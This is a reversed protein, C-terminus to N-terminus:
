AIHTNSDSYLSLTQHCHYIGLLLQSLVHQRRDLGCLWGEMDGRFFVERGKGEGANANRLSKRVCCQDKDIFSQENLCTIDSIQFLDNVIFKFHQKIEKVKYTIHLDMSPSCDLLIIVKISLGLINQHHLLFVVVYIYLHSLM